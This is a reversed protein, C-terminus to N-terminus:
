MEEKNILPEPHATVIVCPATKALTTHLYVATILGMMIWPIFAIRTGWVTNDILAHLLLGTFGALSGATITFMLDDPQRRYYQMSQTGMYLILLAISIFAILGILGLDTAVQLFLNHTGPNSTPPLPYLRSAVHNFAGMGAGTFPFDAMMILAVRWVNLRFALTDPDTMNQAVTVERATALWLGAGIITISLLAATKRWHSWWLLLLISLAAALYGGRSKTLLLATGILLCALVALVFFKGPDRLPAPWENLAFAVALPMLLLLLSAMVNPHVADTVLFHPLYDYIAPPILGGKTLLWNVILPSIIALTVGIVILSVATGILQWRKQAWFVLAYLMSLSACLRSVQVTTIDPDATILLSLIATFFLLFIPWDLPTLRPRGAHTIALTFFGAVIIWWALLDSSNFHIYIGGFAVLFIGAFPRIQHWAWKTITQLYTLSQTM